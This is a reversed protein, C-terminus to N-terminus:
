KKNNNSQLYTTILIDSKLTRHVPCKDAIEILKDKQEQTLSGKLEIEREIHDIKADPRHCNKCDKAHIKEYTLKVAVKELPIKKLDAYMRLTMSTCSGLAALLYEYPSPGQDNGGLTKPEDAILAHPGAVIKQIYKGEGTEFVTISEGM